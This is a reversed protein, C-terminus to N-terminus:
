TAARTLPTENRNLAWIRRDEDAAASGSALVVYAAGWALLLRAPKM